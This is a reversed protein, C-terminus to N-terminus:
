VFALFKFGGMLFEFGGTLFKLEGTLFEVEFEGIRSCFSSNASGAM